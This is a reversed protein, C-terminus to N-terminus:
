PIAATSSEGVEYVSVPVTEDEHENPNEVEIEDDSLSWIMKKKKLIKKRLNTKNRTREDGDVLVHEPDVPVDDHQNPENVPVDDVHDPPIENVMIIRWGTVTRTPVLEDNENTVVTIGCKKPVRHIPSVWPSDAIPNINGTDFHKM